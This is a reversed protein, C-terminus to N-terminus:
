HFKEEEGGLNPSQQDLSLLEWSLVAELLVCLFPKMLSSTSISDYKPDEYKSILCILNNYQSHHNIKVIVPSIPKTSGLLNLLFRELTWYIRQSVEEYKWNKHNFEISFFYDWMSLIVLSGSGKPNHIQIVESALTSALPLIYM